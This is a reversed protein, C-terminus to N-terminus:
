RKAIGEAFEVFMGFAREVDERGTTRVSTVMRIAFRGELVTSTVWMKGTENVKDYLLRTRENREGEDGGVVRFVTLAFSPGSVVEFLDGRGRVWGAFDEGYQTTKRIYERLGAAGYSRLVFWIKLSRFRRGLPIQWERYDTVLGNASPTNTYVAQSITLALIFWSRDRVYLCSADFNTLLWKHMNMNFSHFHQTLPISM